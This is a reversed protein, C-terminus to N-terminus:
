ASPQTFGKLSPVVEGTKKEAISLTIFLTLFHPIESRTRFDGGPMYLAKNKSLGSEWCHNQSYFIRKKSSVPLANPDKKLRSARCFSSPEQLSIYTSGAQYWELAGLICACNLQCSQWRHLPLFHATSPTNSQFCQSVPATNIQQQHVTYKCFPSSNKDGLNSICDKAGHSWLSLPKGRPCYVLPLGMSKALQEVSAANARTFATLIM